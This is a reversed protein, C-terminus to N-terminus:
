VMGMEKEMGLRERCVFICIEGELYLRTKGWEYRCLSVAYDIWAHVCVTVFVCLGTDGSVCLSGCWIEAKM